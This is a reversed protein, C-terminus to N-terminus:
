RVPGGLPDAALQGNISLAARREGVILARLREREDPTRRMAHAYVRLTFRPERPGLQAMVSAPDEGLAVLVSAFTHRLKHPTM